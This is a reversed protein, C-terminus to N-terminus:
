SPAGTLVSDLVCRGPPEVCWRLPLLQNEERNWTGKQKSSRNYLYVDPGDTCSSTQSDPENVRQLQWWSEWSRHSWQPQHHFESGTTREFQTQLNSLHYGAGALVEPLHQPLNLMTVIVVSINGFVWCSFIFGVQSVHSWLSAEQRCGDEGLLHCM